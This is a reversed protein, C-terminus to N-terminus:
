LNDNDRWTPRSSIKKKERFCVSRAGMSNWLPIEYSVVVEGDRGPTFFGSNSIQPNHLPLRLPNGEVYVLRLACTLFSFLLIIKNVATSLFM